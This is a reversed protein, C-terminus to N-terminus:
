ARESKKIYNLNTYEAIDGRKLKEAFEKIKEIDEEKWYRVQKNGTGKMIPKPILRKEGWKEKDNSIRDWLRITQTSRGVMEAVEGIRFM